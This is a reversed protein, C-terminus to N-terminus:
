LANSCDSGLLQCTVDDKIDSNVDFFDEFGNPTVLFNGTLMEYAYTQDGFPTTKEYLIDDVKITM